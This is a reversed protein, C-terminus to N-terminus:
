RGQDSIPPAQREEPAPLPPVIQSLAPRDSELNQVIGAVEKNGPNLDAIKRFQELAAETNGKQDYILGLFYRANSYNENLRVAQAFQLEADDLRNAQYYLFGLQFLVGVDGIAVAKTDELKRIAGELDNQRVYAQALLFHSSAFDPKLAASKELHVIAKGIAESRKETLGTIEDKNNTQSLKLALVDAAILYARGADLYAQPGIPDRPIAEEYMVTLFEESCLLPDVQIVTECIAGVLTWNSSEAPNLRQAEQAARYAEIFNTQFDQVLEPSPNAFQALQSQILNRLRLFYVQGQLRFYKSEKPDIAIANALEALPKDTDSSKNLYAVARSYSSDARYKQFSYYMGVISGVVFFISLLSAIFMVSTSSVSVTRMGLTLGDESESNSLAAFIGLMLFVFLSTTFTPPYLFWMVGGFVTAAAIGFRLPDGKRSLLTNKLVVVFASLVFLIFVAVGLVGGTALLTTGLASGHFFKVAWFIRDLNLIPDRYLSYDYIFTGPGSGLWMNEELSQKGINLTARFNPSVEAPFRLSWRNQSQAGGTLADMFSQQFSSVFLLLSLVLVILPLYFSIGGLARIGAGRDPSGGSKGFVRMGLSLLVIMSVALGLWIIKFNTILFLNLLMLAVTAWVLWSFYKKM